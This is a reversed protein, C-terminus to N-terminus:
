INRSDVSPRYLPNVATTIPQTSIRCIHQGFELWREENELGLLRRMVKILINRLRDNRRDIAWDIWTIIKDVQEISREMENLMFDYISETLENLELLYSAVFLDIIHKQPEFNDIQYTYLYQLIQEFVVPPIYNINLYVHRVSHSPQGRLAATIQRAFFTSRTALVARRTVSTM